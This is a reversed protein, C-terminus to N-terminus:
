TEIGSIENKTDFRQLMAKNIDQYHEPRLPWKGIVFYTLVSIKSLYYELCSQVKTFPIYLEM